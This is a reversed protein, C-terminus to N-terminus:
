RRHPIHKDMFQAVAQNWENTLKNRTQSLESNIQNYKDIGTNVEEMKQRIAEMETKTRDAPAKAEYDGKLKKYAVNANMFAIITPIRQNAEKDYFQLSQKCSNVLTADTEYSAMAQIADTSETVNKALLNRQKDVQQPEKADMAKVMYGEASSCKFLTLFLKNYYAIVGNVAKSMKADESENLRLSVHHTTAFAQLKANADIFADQQAKNAADQAKIYAEMNDYSQEAIDELDMIKGYDEKLVHYCIDYFRYASSRLVTDGEYAKMRGVRERTSGITTMLHSRQEAVRKASKGHAVASIYGLMESNISRQGDTVRKVYDQADTTTPKKQASLSSLSLIAILPLVMIKDM